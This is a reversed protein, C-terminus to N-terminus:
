DFLAVTALETRTRSTVLPKRSSSLGEGAGFKRRRFKVREDILRLLECNYLYVLISRSRGDVSEAPTANWPALMEIAKIIAREGCNREVDDPLSYVTLDRQPRLRAVVLGQEQVGDPNRFRRAEPAGTLQWDRTLAILRPPTIPFYRGASPQARM